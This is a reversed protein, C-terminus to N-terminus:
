LVPVGSKQRVRHAARLRSGMRFIRRGLRVSRYAAAQLTPRWIEVGSLHREGTALRKKYSSSGRLFDYATIRREILAKMLLLHALNGPSRLSGTTVDVGSQYFDFKSGTVFGYLVACARAHLSLRALVARGTPLWRAILHRHFETFRPAAFVGPQGDRAWRAQHLRILDSFVDAAQDIGVIEFRVGALDGERLLRRAQQRGNSSLRHLYAEFGGTLDAVPCAGMSFPHTNPPLVWPLLLPSSADLHLLELHDWAMRGIERWVVRACLSDEGPLSLINLYDPCTEEFEAEGTSVIRLHRVGHLGRNERHSYLPCVGILTSARWVTVVRLSAAQISPQYVRWWTRLWAHDLATAATPCATYLEEWERRIADWEAAQQIVRSTVHGDPM